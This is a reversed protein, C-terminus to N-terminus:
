FVLDDSQYIHAESDVRSYIQWFDNFRIWIPFPYRKIFSEFGTKWITSQFNIIRAQDSRGGKQTIRNKLVIVM